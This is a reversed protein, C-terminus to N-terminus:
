PTKNAAYPIQFHCYNLTVICLKFHCHNPIDNKTILEKVKIKSQKM